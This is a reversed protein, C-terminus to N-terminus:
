KNQMSLEYLNWKKVVKKYVTDEKKLKFKQNIKIDTM